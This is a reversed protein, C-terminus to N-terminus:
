LMEKLKELDQRTDVGIGAPKLSNACHIKYGHWLPTLQELKETQELVSPVLTLLKRIFKAKYAYLGIHKYVAVEDGQERQFPITSRSFYLAIDNKDTVVKVCNSDSIQEGTIQEKLTAIDVSDQKNAVVQKIIEPPLLPEDGQVNVIIEDDSINLKDLVEGIRATGSIHEKKTLCVQAGFGECVTKIREDDTAIIINLNTKQANEYTHQILPKGHVDQLLKADLRTSAYRAPIIITAIKDM